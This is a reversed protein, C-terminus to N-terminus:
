SRAGGRLQRVQERLERVQTNLADLEARTPHDFFKAWLEMLAGQEAKFAHAANSLSALLQVYEAGQAAQAYAKEANEIWATYIQQPWQTPDSGVPFSKAASPMASAFSQAATQGVKAWHASLQNQLRQCQGALEFLRRGIADQKSLLADMPSAATPTAATGPMQTFRSWFQAVDTGPGVLSKQFWDSLTKTFDVPPAAPAAAGPFGSMFARTLNAYQEFAQSYRRHLEGEFDERADDKSNTM